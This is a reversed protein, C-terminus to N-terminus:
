KLHIPKTSQTQQTQRRVGLHHYTAKNYMIYVLYVYTCSKCLLHDRAWVEDPVKLIVNLHYHQFLGHKSQNPDPVSVMFCSLSDVGILTRVVRSDLTLSFRETCGTCYTNISSQPAPPQGTTTSCQCSLGPIRPEIEPSQRSNM